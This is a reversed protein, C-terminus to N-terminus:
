PRFFVLHSGYWLLAALLALGSIQIAYWVRPHRMVVKSDRFTASFIVFGLVFSPFLAVALLLLIAPHLLHHGHLTILARAVVAVLATLALIALVSYRM